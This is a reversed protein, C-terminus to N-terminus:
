LESASLYCEGSGKCYRQFNYTGRTTDFFRCSNNDSSYTNGNTIQSTTAAFGVTTTSPNVFNCSPGGMLVLDSGHMNLNVNPGLYLMNLMHVTRYGMTDVNGTINGGVWPAAQDPNAYLVNVNNNFVKGLATDNSTFLPDRVDSTSPLSSPVASLNFIHIFNGSLWNIRNVLPTNSQTMQLTYGDVRSRLTTVPTNAVPWSLYAASSSTMGTVGGTLSGNHVILGGYDIGSHKLYITGAGIGNAAGRAQVRNVFANM